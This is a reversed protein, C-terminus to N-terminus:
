RVPFRFDKHKIKTIVRSGNRCYLEYKPRAVIGEALFDGWISNFGNKAIEVMEILTGSGIIPVIEINLNKAIDEVDERKLWFNGIKVDFLVFDQDKRYKDGGKQIKPGYGEGYLCVKIPDEKGFKEEFIKLNFKNRLKDLLTPQIQANDTKGGYNLETYGDENCSYKIRINTGDVKETFTWINNKLYEFEPLSYNNIILTKFNTKPDRKFVTNIKHYQIM